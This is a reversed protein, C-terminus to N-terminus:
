REPETPPEPKVLETVPIGVEASNTKPYNITQYQLNNRKLVRKLEGEFNDGFLLVDEVLGASQQSTGAEAAPAPSPTSSQKFLGNYLVLAAGGFCIVIVATQILTKRTM